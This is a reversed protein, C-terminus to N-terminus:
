ATRQEACSIHHGLDIDETAIMSFHCIGCNTPMVPVAPMDAPGPATGGETTTAWSPSTACSATGSTASTTGRPMLSQGTNIGATGTTGADPLTWTSIPPAGVYGIQVGLKQRARGLTREPIGAKKGEAKATRSEIGPNMRLYSELWQEAETRGAGDEDDATAAIHEAATLASDGVYRLAGVTGDNDETPEFHQVSEIVFESAPMRGTTNAKEPGVVLNGTEEDRQAYLTLRAKKRLEGTVGYRDRARSSTSRNTHALLLVAADTRTAVDPWGALAKRAGQPKQVDISGPVTDLWADVVVLAPAPDHDLILDLDRPFEPSGTGDDNECIVSVRQIDAGAVTLRPLVTTTWDDETVVICVDAPERAPIGFEPLPRGTTVAAVIWVWLLSKGIGEDGVLLSTAARPLRGRALWRPQQAPQLDVARWVQPFKWDAHWDLVSEERATM